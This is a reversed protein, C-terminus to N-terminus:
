PRIPPRPASRDPQPKRGFTGFLYDVLAPFETSSVMAGLATMRSVMDAYDQRNPYSQSRVVDASHCGTCARDFIQKGPHEQGSDNQQPPPPPAQPPTQQPVANALANENQEATSEVLPEEALLAQAVAPSEPKTVPGPERGTLAQYAAASVSWAFEEALRTQKMALDTAFEEGPQLQQAFTGHEVRVTGELVAVRTSREETKVLFLTGQVTATAHKTRVSLQGDRRRAATIVIAGDNLRLRIDDGIVSEVVFETHPGIEVVSGDGLTRLMPENGTRVMEASVINSDPPSSPVGATESGGGAPAVEKLNWLVQVSLLVVAITAAAALLMWRKSRSEGVAATEPWLRAERMRFQKLFTEFEEDPRDM